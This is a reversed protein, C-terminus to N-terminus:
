PVHERPAVLQQLLHQTASSDAAGCLGARARERGAELLLQVEGVLRAGSTALRNHPQLVGLHVVYDRKGAPPRGGLVVSLQQVFLAVAGFTCGSCSGQPPGTLAPQETLPLRAQWLQHAAAQGARVATMASMSSWRACSDCCVHQHLCKVAAVSGWEKLHKSPTAFM